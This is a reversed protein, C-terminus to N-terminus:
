RRDARQLVLIGFQGPQELPPYGIQAIPQYRSRVWAGLEMAYDKGFFRPGYESTDEHVLVAFSPPDAELAHLMKHEGFTAVQHPNFNGYPQPNDLGSLFNLMECDPFCTLTQGARAVSALKRLAMGLAVGRQNSLFGNAGTGVGFKKERFLKRSWSLHGVVFLICACAAASAFIAGACRRAKLYSPLWDLMSIACLLTAPMALGFGYHWVRTHLLMKLLLMLAFVAFALRLVLPERLARDDPARGLRIWTAIVLLGMFVPWPSAMASWDVFRGAALVVALVALPAAAMAVRSRVPSRALFVISMVAGVAFGYGCFWVLIRRLSEVPELLGAGELFFRQGGLNQGFVYMWSGLTGEVAQDLPMALRLLCAALLPPVMVGGIWLFISRVWENRSGVPGLTLTWALATAFAGAVFIEIKTLFLLGVALGSLALYIRRRDKQFSRVLALSALSLVIGHTVEHSYPCIWNYNGIGVYQSFGFITIVILCCSVAVWRRSIELTIKFVLWLLASLVACNTLVLTRLNAGLLRFSISNLYPSLPGNHYAIDRYLVKGKFLQWPVYLERGFDVIPDPWTGWSWLLMVEAASAVILFPALRLALGRYSLSLSPSDTSPPTAAMSAGVM